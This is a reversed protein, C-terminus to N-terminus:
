AANKLLASSVTKPSTASIASRVGPVRRASVPRADLCGAALVLAAVPLVRIM